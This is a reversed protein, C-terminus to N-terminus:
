TFQSDAREENGKNTKTFIPPRRIEVFAFLPFLSIFFETKGGDRDLGLFLTTARRFRHQSRRM